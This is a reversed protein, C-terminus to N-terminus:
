IKKIINICWDTVSVSAIYSKVSPNSGPDWAHSTSSKGVSSDRGPFTIFSSVLSTDYRFHLIDTIAFM